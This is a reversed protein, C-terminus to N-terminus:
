NFFIKRLQEMKRDPIRKDFTPCHKKEILNPIIYLVYMGCETNSQQHETTNVIKKLDINLQKGQKIVRDIFVEIEKPTDM